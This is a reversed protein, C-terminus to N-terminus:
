KFMESRLKVNLEISVCVYNSAYLVRTLYLFYIFLEYLIVIFVILSIFVNNNLCYCRSDQGALVFKKLSNDKHTLM